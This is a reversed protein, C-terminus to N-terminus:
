SIAIYLWYIIAKFLLVNDSFWIQTRRENFFAHVFFLNYILYLLFHLILFLLGFHQNLFKYSLLIFNLIFLGYIAIELIGKPITNSLTIHKYKSDAEADQYDYLITQALLVIFFDLALLHRNNQEVQPSPFVFLLLAVWSGCIILNKLLPIKRLLYLSGHNHYLLSLIGLGSLRMQVKSEMDPFLIFLLILPLLLIAYDSLENKRIEPFHFGVCIQKQYFYIIFTSLSTILVEKWDPLLHYLYFNFLIFLLTAMGGYYLSM